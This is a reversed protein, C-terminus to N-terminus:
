VLPQISFCSSFILIMDLTLVNVHAMGLLLVEPCHNLPNELVSRVFSAHGRESLLCLVELLDHCSWAHNVQGSQFTHGIVADDYSQVLFASVISM